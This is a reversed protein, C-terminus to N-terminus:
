SGKIEGDQRDLMNTICRWNHEGNCRNCEFETKETAIADKEVLAM